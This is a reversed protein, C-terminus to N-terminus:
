RKQKIVERMNKRKAEAERHATRGYSTLYRTGLRVQRGPLGLCKYCERKSWPMFPDRHQAAGKCRSCSVFPHTRISYYYRGALGLAVVALAIHLSGTLHTLLAVM